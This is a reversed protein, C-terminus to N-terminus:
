GRGLGRDFHLSLDRNRTWFPRVVYVTTEKEKKISCGAEEPTWDYPVAREHCVVLDVDGDAASVMKSFFEPDLCDDSDAFAIWEGQALDLGKNRAASVGRNPQTIIRVIWEPHSDRFVNLMEISRDTSGDDIFIIELGNCTQRELGTFFDPLFKERNFVPVILTILKQRDSSATEYTNM